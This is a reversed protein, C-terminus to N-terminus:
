FPPGFVRIKLRYTAPVHHHGLGSSLDILRGDLTSHGTATESLKTTHPMPQESAGLISVLIMRMWRFHSHLRTSPLCLYVSVGGEAEKLERPHFSSRGSLNQRIAPSDLFETNRRATSLISARETSGLSSLANAAAVIAGDCAWNEQMSQLLGEFPTLPKDKRAMEAFHASGNMLLYRVVTLDPIDPRTEEPYLLGLPCSKAHLILGKIFNRASEDWHADKENSIVVLANALDAAQDVAEPSDLGISEMPNFTGRYSAASARTKGFPDLVVVKQGMGEVETSGQGRRAATHNANEGKPDLCIVSGPYLCLNPIIAATGKGARSGAITVIHRNDKLGIPRANRSDARGLWFMGREYSYLREVADESEFDYHKFPNIGGQLTITM